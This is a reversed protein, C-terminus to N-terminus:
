LHFYHQSELSEPLNKGSFTVLFIFQGNVIYMTNCFVSTRIVCSINMAWGFTNINKTNRWSFRHKTYENSTGWCPMELSYVCCKNEHLFIFFTVQIGRKIQLQTYQYPTSSSNNQTKLKLEKIQETHCIDKLKKLYLYNLPSTLLLIQHSNQSLKEWIDGYFCIECLWRM